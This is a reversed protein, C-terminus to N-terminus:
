FVYRVGIGGWITLRNDGYYNLLEFSPQFDLSVNIPADAFKYDLGLVGDLGLAVGGGYKSNFAGVHAGPGLYWKLGDLASIDNHIEYLATFRAGRNYFYGLGEVANKGDIFHKFSIGAPYFKVGIANTYDLGDAIAKQAKSGLFLVCAFLVILSRKVM